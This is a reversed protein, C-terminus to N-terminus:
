ANLDSLCCSAQFLSERIISHHSSQGILPGHRCAARRAGVRYVLIPPPCGDDILRSRLAGEAASTRQDGLRYQWAAGRPCEGTGQQGDSRTGFAMRWQTQPTARPKTNLPAQQKYHTKCGHGNAYLLLKKSFGNGVPLLFPDLIAISDMTTRAKAVAKRTPRAQYADFCLASSM